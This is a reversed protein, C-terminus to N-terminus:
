AHAPAAHCPPQRAGQARAAAIRELRRLTWPDLVPRAGPRAALAAAAEDWLGGAMAAEVTLRAFVDRQAHSGGVRQLRSGAALLRAFGARHAGRAMALLGAAVEAGPAAAEAREDDGRADQALTAALTEAEAMRGAGLLALLYHLDAFVNARDAARGAALAALEDWRDGVEAGEMELRALLSAANAIDRYDDTRAARVRADYLALAQDLGGRDLHFLALHWWVHFGFNNCHAWREAAGALWRVGDGPRGTMEFVHAVAHLGWADDPALALGRRGEAEAAGYAGTEELAFARCGAAYGAHPHDVGFGPAQTAARLMGGADGGVFRLAHVLKFALADGPHAALTAELADAAALPRGEAALALAAVHGRARADLTAARARGLAARAAEMTERRGLLAQFLGLAAHGLGFAPDAALVAGLHAPTDAGHALFATVCADWRDRAVPDTLTVACGTREHLSM